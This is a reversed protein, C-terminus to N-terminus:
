PTTFFHRFRKNGNAVYDLSCQIQTSGFPTADIHMLFSIEDGTIVLDNLYYDYYYGNSYRSFEFSFTGDDNATINAPRSKISGIWLAVQDNDAPLVDVVYRRPIELVGDCTDGTQTINANFAGLPMSLSKKIHPQFRPSGRYRDAVHWVLGGDLGYWDWSVTLDLYNNEIKGKIRYTHIAGPITVDVSGDVARPLNIFSTRTGSLDFIAGSQNQTITDISQYRSAPLVAAVSDEVVEHLVRWQGDVGDRPEGDWNQYRRTGKNEFKWECETHWVGANDRWGITWNNFFKLSGSVVSGIANIIFNVPPYGPTIYWDFSYENTFKGVRDRKANRHSFDYYGSAGVSRIDVKDWSQEVVDAVAFITPINQDAGGCIYLNSQVRMAYEGDISDLAVITDVTPEQAEPLVPPGADESLELNDGCSPMLLAIVIFSSVRRTSGM